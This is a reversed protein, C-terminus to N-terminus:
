YCHTTKFVESTYPAKDSKWHKVILPRSVLLIHTIVVRFDPPFNEIGINLIALSPNPPTLIGTINSISRFINHWFSTLHKCTWFMYLLNGVAGCNRWCLPSNSQCFKSLRYSTLYWRLAIKQLLELHIVCKSAKYVTKLTYQWQSTTIPKGLDSEWKQYPQFKTFTLKQQFSNYFFSIGKPPM